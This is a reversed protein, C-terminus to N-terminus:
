LFNDRSGGSSDVVPTVPSFGTALRDPAAHAPSGSKTHPKRCSHFRDNFRENNRGSPRDIALDTLSLGISEEMLARMDATGGGLSGGSGAPGPGGITMSISDHLDKVMERQEAPLLPPQIKPLSVIGSRVGSGPSRTVGNPRFGESRSRTGADGGNASQQSGRLPQHFDSNDVWASGAFGVTSVKGGGHNRPTDLETHVRRDDMDCSERFSDDIGAPGAEYLPALKSEELGREQLTRQRQAELSAEIARQMAEEEADEVEEAQMDVLDDPILHSNAHLSPLPLASQSAALHGPGTSSKSGPPSGSKQRARGGGGASAKDQPYAM